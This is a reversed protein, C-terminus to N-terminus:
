AKQPRRRRRATLLGAAPVAFAALATPEPVLSSLDGTTNFAVTDLFVNVPTPSSSTPGQIFISDITVPSGDIVGNPGTGAFGTFEGSPANLNWQYLHWQGDAIITRFTGLELAAGDDLGVATTLNPVTTKLFYGVYGNPGITTNNAPTGSGSLHRLRFTTTPFDTAAGPNQPTLGVIQSGAGTFATTTTPDATAGTLNRNTGSATLPNASNFHGESGGEFDDIIIPTARAVGAFGAAVVLCAVVRLDTRRM